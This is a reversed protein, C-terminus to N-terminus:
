SLLWTRGRLPCSVHEVPPGVVYLWGPRIQEGCRACPESTSQSKLLYPPPPIAQTQTKM